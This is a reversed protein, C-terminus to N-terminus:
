LKGRKKKVKKRANEFCCEIGKKGVGYRKALEIEVRCLKRLLQLISQDKM